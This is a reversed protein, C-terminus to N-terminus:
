YLQVGNGGKKKLAWQKQFHAIFITLTSILGICYGCPHDIKSCPLIGVRASSLICRALQFIYENNFKVTIFESLNADFDIWELTPM